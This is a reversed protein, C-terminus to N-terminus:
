PIHIEGKGGSYDGYDGNPKISTTIVDEAAFVIIKMELVTYQDKM